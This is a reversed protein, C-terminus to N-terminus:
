RATQVQGAPRSSTVPNAKARSETFHPAFMGVLIMLVAMVILLDVVSFKNLRRKM